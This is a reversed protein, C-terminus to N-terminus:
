EDESSEDISPPIPEPDFAIQGPPPQFSPEGMAYADPPMADRDREALVFYAAGAAVSLASSAVIAAAAM